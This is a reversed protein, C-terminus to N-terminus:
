RWGGYEDITRVHINSLTLIKEPLLACYSIVSLVSAVSHINQRLVSCERSAALRRVGSNLKRAQQPIYQNAWSIAICKSRFTDPCEPCKSSGVVHTGPLSLSCEWISAALGRGRCEGVARDNGPCWLVLTLAPFGVASSFEQGNVFYKKSFGLTSSLEQQNVFYCRYLLFCIKKSQSSM